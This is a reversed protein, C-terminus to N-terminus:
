MSLPPMFFVLTLLKSYLFISSLTHLDINSLTLKETYRLKQKKKEGMFVFAIVLESKRLKALPSALDNRPHNMM